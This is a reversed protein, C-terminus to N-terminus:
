LKKRSIFKSSLSIKQNNIPKFCTPSVKRDNNEAMMHLPLVFLSSLMGYLTFQFVQAQIQSTGVYCLSWASQARLESMLEYQGM